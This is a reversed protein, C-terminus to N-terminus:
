YGPLSDPFDAGLILLVDTPPSEVRQEILQGVGFAQNLREAVARAGERRHSRAVVLTRRYNMRDANGTEYVDFGQRRLWRSARDGLGSVGCGNWVVLTPSAADPIVPPDSEWGVTRVPPPEPQSQLYGLYISFGFFAILAM